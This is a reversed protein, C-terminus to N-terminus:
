RRVRARLGHAKDLVRDVVGEAAKPHGFLKSSQVLAKDGLQSLRDSARGSLSEAHDAASAGFRGAREAAAHSFASATGLAAVGLREASNAAKEGLREASNALLKAKRRAIKSGDEAADVADHGFAMAASASADALAHARCRLKRGLKKPILASVVLGIALGGAVTLMPHDKVFGIAKESPTMPEPRRALAVVNTSPISNADNASVPKIETAM